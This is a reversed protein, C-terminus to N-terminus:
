PIYSWALQYELFPIDSVDALLGNTEFCGDYKVLILKMYSFSSFYVLFKM